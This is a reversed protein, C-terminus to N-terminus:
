HNGVLGTEAQKSAAIMCVWCRYMPHDGVTVRRYGLLELRPGACGLAVCHENPRSSLALGSLSWHPPCNLVRSSLHDVLLM